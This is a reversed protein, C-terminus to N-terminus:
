KPTYREVNQCSSLSTFLDSPIHFIFFMKIDVVVISRITLNLITSLYLQGSYKLRFHPQQLFACGPRPYTHLVLLFVRNMLPEVVGLFMLKGTHYKSYPPIHNWGSLAINNRNILGRSKSVEGLSFILTHSQVLYRAVEHIGRTMDDIQHDYHLCANLTGIQISSVVRAEM